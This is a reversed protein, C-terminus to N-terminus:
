ARRGLYEIAAQLRATDDKFKGLGHNCNSCLLGRICEGCSRIGPCCSHDHDIAPTNTFEERCVACANEQERLMQNYHDETIGYKTFRALRTQERIVEPNAAYYARKAVARARNRYEEPNRERWAKNRAVSAANRCVKCIGRHNGAPTLHFESLPKETSCRSCVKSDIRIPAAM